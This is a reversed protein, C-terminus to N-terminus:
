KGWEENYEGKTKITCDQPCDGLSEPIGRRPHTVNAENVQSYALLVKGNKGM